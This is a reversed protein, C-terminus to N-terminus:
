CVALRIVCIVYFKLTSMFVIIAPNSLHWNLVTVHPFTPNFTSTTQSLLVLVQFAIHEKRRPSRQFAIVIGNSLHVESAQIKPLPTVSVARGPRPPAAM